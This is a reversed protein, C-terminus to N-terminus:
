PEGEVCDDEEDDRLLEAEPTDVLAEVRHWFKHFSIGFGLALCFLLYADPNLDNVDELNRVFNEPVHSRKALQELTLGQEKRMNSVVTCIAAITRLQKDEQEPTKHSASQRLAEGLEEQSVGRAERLTKLVAGVGRNFERRTIRKVKIDERFHGSASAEAL